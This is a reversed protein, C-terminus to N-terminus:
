RCSVVAVRVPVTVSAEPAPIALAVKFNSLTVRPVDRAATVSAPPRNAKVKHWHPGISQRNRLAAELASSARADFQYGALNEIQWNL